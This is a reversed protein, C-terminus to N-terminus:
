RVMVVYCNYSVLKSNKFIESKCFFMHQPISEFKGEFGIEDAIYINVLCNTILM